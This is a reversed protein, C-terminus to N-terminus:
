RKDKDIFELTVTAFAAFILVFLLLRLWYLAVNQRTYAYDPSVSGEAAKDQLLSRVAEVGIRSQLEAITMKVPFSRARLAELDGSAELLDKLQGVTYKFNLKNGRYAELSGDASAM